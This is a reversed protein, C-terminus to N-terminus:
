GKKTEAKMIAFFSNYYKAKTKFIKDKKGANEQLSAFAGSRRAKLPITKMGMCFAGTGSM